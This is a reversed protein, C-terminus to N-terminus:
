HTDTHTHTQTHRHTDTHTQTHTLTYLGQPPQHTHAPAEISVSPSSAPFPPFLGFFLSSSHVSLSLFFSFFHVPFSYVPLLLLSFIYIYKYVYFFFSFFSFPHLLIADHSATAAAAATNEVPLAGAGSFEPIRTGGRLPRLQFPLARAHTM